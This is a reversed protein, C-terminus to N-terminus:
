GLRGQAFAVALAVLTLLVVLVWLVRTTTEPARPKEATEEADDGWLAVTSDSSPPPEPEERRPREDREKRKRLVEAYGLDTDADDHTSEPVDVSPPDEEPPPEVELKPQKGSIPALKIQRHSTPEEEVADDHLRSLEPPAARAAIAAKRLEAIKASKYVFTEDEEPDQLEAEMRALGSWVSGQSPEDDKKTM